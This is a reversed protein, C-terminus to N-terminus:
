ELLIPETSTDEGDDSSARTLLGYFAMEETHHKVGAGWFEDWGAEVSWDFM